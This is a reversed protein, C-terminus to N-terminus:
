TRPYNGSPEGRRYAVVLMAIGALIM